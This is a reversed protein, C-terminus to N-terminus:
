PIPDSDAQMVQLTVEGITEDGLVAIGCIERFGEFEFSNEARVEVTDGLALTSRAFRAQKIGVLWGKKDAGPGDKRTREIGNSIGATQAVLEIIVMADVARGDFLPWRSTVTSRTVARKEDASVVRDVLKMRNRHPLLETLDFEM